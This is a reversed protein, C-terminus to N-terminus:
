SSNVLPFYRNPLFISGTLDAENIFISSSLPAQFFVSSNQSGSVNANFTATYIGGDTITFVSLSDFRSSRLITLMSM